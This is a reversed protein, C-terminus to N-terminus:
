TQSPIPRSQHQFPPLRAKYPDLLNRHLGVFHNGSTLTSIGMIRDAACPAYSMAKASAHM